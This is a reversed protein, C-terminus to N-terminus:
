KFLVLEKVRKQEVKRWVFAIILLYSSYSFVELLCPSANYGFFTAFFEGLADKENL